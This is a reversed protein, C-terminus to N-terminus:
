SLGMEEELACMTLVLVPLVFNELPIRLLPYLGLGAETSLCNLAQMVLPQQDEMM